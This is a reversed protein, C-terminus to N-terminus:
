FRERSRIFLDCCVGDSYDHWGYRSVDCIFESEDPFTWTKQYGDPMMRYSLRAKALHQTLMRYFDRAAAEYARQVAPDDVRQGLVRQHEGAALYMRARDAAWLHEGPDCTNIIDAGLPAFAAPDYVWPFRSVLGAAAAEDLISHDLEIQLHTTVRRVVGALADASWSQELLAENSFRLLREKVLAADVTIQKPEDPGTEAPETTVPVAASRQATIESITSM